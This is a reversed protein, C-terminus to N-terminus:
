GLLKRLVSPVDRNGHIVTLLLVGDTMPQYFVVYNGIPFCRIGNGLDERLDGMLPQHAYQEAKEAIKRLFRTAVSRDGSERAIYRGIQKLDDRALPTRLVRAM